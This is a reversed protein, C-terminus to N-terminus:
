PRLFTHNHSLSLSLALALALSLPPAFGWSVWAESPVLWMCVRSGFSYHRMIHNRPLSLSITPPQSAKHRGRSSACALAAREAPSSNVRQRLAREVHVRQRLAREVHARQRLARQLHARQRDHLRRHVWFARRFKAAVDAAEVHVRGSQAHTRPHLGARASGAALYVAQNNEGGCSTSAGSLASNGEQANKSSTSSAM